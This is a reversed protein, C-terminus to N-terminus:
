STTPLRACKPTPWRRSTRRPAPLPCLRTHPPPITRLLAGSGLERSLAEACVGWRSGCEAAGEPIYFCSVGTMMALPTQIGRAAALRGTGHPTNSPTTRVQALKDCFWRHPAEFANQDWNPGVAEDRFVDMKLCPDNCSMTNPFCGPNGSSFTCGRSQQGSLNMLDLNILDLGDQDSANVPGGSEDPYPAFGHLARPACLMLIGLTAHMRHTRLSARM